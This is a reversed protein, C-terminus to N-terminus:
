HISLKKPDLVFYIFTYKFDQKCKYKMYIDIRLIVRMIDLNRMYQSNVIKYIEINNIMLM